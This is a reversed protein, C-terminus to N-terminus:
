LTRGLLIVRTHLNIGITEYKYFIELYYRQLLVTESNRSTSDVFPRSSLQETHKYLHTSIKYAYQTDVCKTKKQSSNKISLSLKYKMKFSTLRYASITFSSIYSKSMM